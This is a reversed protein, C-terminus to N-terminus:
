EFLMVLRLWGCSCDQYQTDFTLLPVGEPYHDLMSACEELLSVVNETDGTM